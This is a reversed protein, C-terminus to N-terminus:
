NLRRKIIQEDMRENMQKNKENIPKNWEKLGESM